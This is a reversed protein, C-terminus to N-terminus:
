PVTAGCGEVRVGAHMNQRARNRLETILRAAARAYEVVPTDPATRSGKRAPIGAVPINDKITVHM